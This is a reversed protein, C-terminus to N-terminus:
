DKKRLVDRYPCFLPWLSTNKNPMFVCTGCAWVIAMLEDAGVAAVVACCCSCPCCLIFVHDRSPGVQHAQEGPPNDSKSKNACRVLFAIIRGIILTKTQCRPSLDPQRLFNYFVVELYLTIRSLRYTSAQQQQDVFVPILNFQKSAWSSFM